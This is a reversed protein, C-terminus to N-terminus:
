KGGGFWGEVSSVLVRVLYSLGQVVGMCLGALPDHARIWSGVCCPSFGQPWCVLQVMVQVLGKFGERPGEHFMKCGSILRRGPGAGCGRPRSLGSRWGEFAM